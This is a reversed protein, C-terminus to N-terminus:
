QYYYNHLRNVAQVWISDTKLVLSQQYIADVYEDKVICTSDVLKRTSGDYFRYKYLTYDSALNRTDYVRFWSDEALEGEEKQIAIIRDEIKQFEVMRDVEQNKSVEYPVEYGHVVDIVSVLFALVIIIAVIGKWSIDFKFDFKKM